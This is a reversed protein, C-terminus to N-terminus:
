EQNLYKKSFVLLNEDISKKTGIYHKIFNKRAHNNLKLDSSDSIIKNWYIDKFESYSNIINPFDISKYILEHNPHLFDLIFVPIDKLFAECIVSTGGGM